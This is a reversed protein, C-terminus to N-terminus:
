VRRLFGIIMVVICSAVTEKGIQAVRHHLADVRHRTAHAAHRRGQALRVLAHVGGAALQVRLQAHLHLPQVGLRGLV